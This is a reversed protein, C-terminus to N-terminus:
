SSNLDTARRHKAWLVFANLASAFCRWLMRNLNSDARMSTHGFNMFENAADIIRKNGISVLVQAIINLVFEISNIVPKPSKTKIYSNNVMMTTVIDVFSRQGYVNSKGFAVSTQVDACQAYKRTIKWSISPLRCLGSRKVTMRLTFMDNCWLESQRQDALKLLFKFKM